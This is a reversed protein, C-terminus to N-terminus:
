KVFYTIWIIRLKDLLPRRYLFGFTDRICQYQITSRKAFQYAVETESM